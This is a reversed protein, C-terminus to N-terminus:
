RRGGVAQRFVKELAAGATIEVVGCGLTGARQITVPDTDEWLLLALLVSTGRDLVLRLRMATDRDIHPTIVVNHSRGSRDLMLRELATALSASEREVGALRDLLEIEARRGRLGAAVCAGNTNVSVAFGDKLHKVGLSAAARVATEFTESTEGPSHTGRDTDLFINVRDTIGQEAERVLYRGTGTVLDLSRATARWVIRRPDDGSVYDRLGYFEFGTPWRKSVPPRIPPDEWARSIVRDHVPETSPHVIIPVPEDLAVRRRTIGFPDSWEAILPGVAYRGRRRPVFSYGHTVEVGGRLAPIPFRVAGGLHQPLIEELVVTTVRRRARLSLEVGVLQGERVRTPVKSRGVDFRVARRGLLWAIGVLLLLGYAMVLVPRSAISRGVAWGTAAVAILVMGTATLGIRRELRALLGTRDQRAQAM